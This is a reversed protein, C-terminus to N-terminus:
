VNEIVKEILVDYRVIEANQEFLIDKVARVLVYKYLDINSDYHGTAALIHFRIKSGDAYMKISDALKRFASTENDVSCIAFQKLDNFSAQRQTEFTQAKEIDVNDALLLDHLIKAPNNISHNM